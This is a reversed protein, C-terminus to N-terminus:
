FFHKQRLSKIEGRKKKHDLRREQVSKPIKTKIRKKGPKLIQQVLKELKLLAISKNELQTRATNSRIILTHDKTLRASLGQTLIGKAEESIKSSPIHWRVEVQTEVKNVNQGGKGGSRSTQIELEQQIDGIKMGEIKLEM